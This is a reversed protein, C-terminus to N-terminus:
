IKRRKNYDNQHQVRGSRKARRFSLNRTRIAKMIDKNIWPVNHKRSLKTSVEEWATWMENVDGTLLEEWNVECLLDNATKLDAHQYTYMWVARPSTRKYRRNGCSCHIVSLNVCSHDSSGQHPTVYCHKLEQPHSLFAIDILSQNGAPSTHTAEDVVRTLM